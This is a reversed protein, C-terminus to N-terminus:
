TLLISANYKKLIPLIMNELGLHIYSGQGINSIVHTIPTKMLTRIDKRVNIGASKIIRLISNASNHSVKFKLVWSRHKDEINFPEITKSFNDDSDIDSHVNCNIHRDDDDFTNSSHHHIYFDSNKEHTSSKLSHNFEVIANMGTETIHPTTLNFNNSQINKNISHKSKQKEVNLM